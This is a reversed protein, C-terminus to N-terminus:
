KHCLEKKDSVYFDNRECYNQLIFCAYIVSSLIESKLYAYKKIIVWRVMLQSFSCEVQVHQEIM